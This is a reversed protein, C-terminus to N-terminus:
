FEEKPLIRSNWSIEQTITQDQGGGENNGSLRESTQGKQLMIMQLCYKQYTCYIHVATM